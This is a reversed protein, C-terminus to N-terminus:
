RGSTTAGFRCYNDSRIQETTAKSFVQSNLYFAEFYIEENAWWDVSLKGTTVLSFREIEGVLDSARREDQDNYLDIYSLRGPSAPDQVLPHDPPPLANFSSWNPVGIDSQSDTFFFAGSPTVGVNDPFVSLCVSETGGDEIQVIDRLCHAWERDGTVVRERDYFEAAFQFSGRDSKVGSLFSIQGVEGGTDGPFSTSAMVEFGEFDERLIVNVVGAVADAGYVASVAETLVEVREVLAFPILSIDPQAPAGRVGVSGLRRGNMLVLTREPGLGRLSINASGVGGPPSEETANFTLANTNLTQDIQAGNTVPSRFLLEAISTVGIKRGADVDLRQIPSPSNYEDHRIRTGTVVIEQLADEDDDAAANGQASVTPSLLSLAALQLLVLKLGPRRIGNNM